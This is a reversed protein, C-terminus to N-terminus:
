YTELYLIYELKPSIFTIIYKLLKIYKLMTLFYDLQKQMYERLEKNNRVYSHVNVLLIIISVFLLFHLIIHKKQNVIHIRM